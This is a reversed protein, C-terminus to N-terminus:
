RRLKRLGETVAEKVLPDRLTFFLNWIGVIAVSVTLAFFSYQLDFIRVVISELLVPVWLLIYSSLSLLPKGFWKSVSYYHLINEVVTQVCLGYLAFFPNQYMVFWILIMIGISIWQNMSCKHEQNSMQLIGGIPGIGAILLLCISIVMFTGAYPELETSFLRLILHPFGILAAGITGIFLMQVKVIMLYSKHIQEKDGSLYLRSFEPLFVKAMPGSIFNLFKKVLTIIGTFGASFAGGFIYQLIAPSYNVFAYAIDSQQFDWIKKFPVEVEETGPQLKKGFPVFWILMALFQIGYLGLLILGDVRDMKLCVFLGILMTLRGIVYEGLLAPLQFGRSFFISSRDYALFYVLLIIATGFGYVGKTVTLVALIVMFVPAAYHVIYTKKFRDLKLTPVSLYFTNIKISGAFLFYYSGEIISVFFTYDGYGAMGVYNTLMMQIAIEILAAFAKVGISLIMTFVLKM